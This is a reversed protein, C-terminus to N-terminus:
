ISNLMKVYRSTISYFTLVNENWEETHIRVHFSRVTVFSYIACSSIIM